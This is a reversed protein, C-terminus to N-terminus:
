GQMGKGLGLRHRQLIFGHFKFDIYFAQWKILVVEFKQLTFVNIVSFTTNTADFVDYKSCTVDQKSNNIMILTLQPQDETTLMARLSLEFLSSFVARKERKHWTTSNLFKHAIYVDCDGFCRAAAAWLLFCVCHAACPEVQSVKSSVSHPECGMVLTNPTHYEAGRSHCGSLTLSFFCVSWTSSADFSLFIFHCFLSFMWLTTRM